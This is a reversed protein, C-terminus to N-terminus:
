TSEVFGICPTGFYAEEQQVFLVLKHLCETLKRLSRQLGEGAKQALTDLLEVLNTSEDHLVKTTAM